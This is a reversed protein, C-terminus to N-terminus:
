DSFPHFDELRNILMNFKNSVGPCNLTVNSRPQDPMHTKM